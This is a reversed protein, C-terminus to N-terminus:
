DNRIYLRMQRFTFSIAHTIPLISRLYRFLVIYKLLWPTVGSFSFRGSSLIAFKGGIPIIYKSNGPEYKVLEASENKFLKMLSRAVYGGETSAKQATMPLTEGTKPDSSAAVDGLTFINQYPLIRLTSDVVLCSNKAFSAEYLISGDCAGQVGATWILLDFPISRQDSTTLMNPWVDTVKSNSLITVGLKELRESALRQVHKPFKSLVSPEAEVIICRWNGIPHSHQQSLKRMYGILEGSLEVGAPGGGGIIITISKKKPYASFLEDVRNRINLAEDTTKLGISNDSLHPIDYYNTKSGSAVVLYDYILARGDSFIIKNESPQVRSVTGQEYKIYPTKKFLLSYPVAVTDLLKRFYRWKEKDTEGSLEERYFTALEYLYSPLTHSSNKDIIIIRAAKKKALDFAVRLGGYGGGIIIVLPRKKM